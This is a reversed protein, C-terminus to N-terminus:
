NEKIYRHFLMIHIQFLYSVPSKVCYILMNLSPVSISEFCKKISVSDYYQEYTLFKHKSFSSSIYNKTKTKMIILISKLDIFTSNGIM